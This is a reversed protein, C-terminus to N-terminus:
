RMAPRTSYRSPRAHVDRLGAAALGRDRRRGPRPVRRVRHHRRRPPLGGRAPRRAPRARCAAARRPGGAAPRPHPVLDPPGARRAPRLRARRGARLDPPRALLPHPHGTVGRKAQRRRSTAAPESTHPSRRTPSRAAPATPYTGPEGRRFSMRYTKGGRDVEVDLRASLANVVSAGVGHLGGTAAYSRAASSGAPTCSPSSSRSGPSAPARSSTSPSAGAAPRPGRGLPRRAPRGRHPRRHGALAEDVANDIIEWLCHM